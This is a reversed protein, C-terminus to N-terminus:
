KGPMRVGMHLILAYMMRVQKEQAELIKALIGRTQRQEKTIDDRNSSIIGDAFIAQQAPPKTPAQGERKRTVPGRVQYQKYDVLWAQTQNKHVFFASAHKGGPRMVKIAMIRGQQAAKNAGSAYKGLTSAARVWPKPIGHAESWIELTYKGAPWRKDYEPHVKIGV